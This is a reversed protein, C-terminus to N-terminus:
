TIGRQQDPYIYLVTTCFAHGDECQKFAMNMLYSRYLSRLQSRRRGYIWVHRDKAHGTHVGAGGSGHHILPPHFDLSRPM